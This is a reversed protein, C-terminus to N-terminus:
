PDILKKIRDRVFMKGRKRHREIAEKGGGMRVTDAVSEISKQLAVFSEVNKAYARDKELESGIVSM